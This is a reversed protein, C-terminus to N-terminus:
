KNRWQHISLAANFIHLDARRERLPFERLNYKGTKDLRVAIRRFPLAPSCVLQGYAALQIGVWPLISGTKIDLILPLDEESSLVRDPTGAYESGALPQEIRSFHSLSLTLTQEKFLRWADLYDRAEEPVSEEDLDNEDDLQCCMHVVSGRWAAAETFYDTNIVGGSQLIQTVSPIKREGLWYTHTEPEFRLETSKEELLMPGGRRAQGSGAVGVPVSGARGTGM